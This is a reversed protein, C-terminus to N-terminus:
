VSGKGTPGPVTDEIRIGYRGPIYIGPEFLLRWEPSSNPKTARSSLHRNMSTSALATAQAHANWEGYGSDIIVTSAASRSTM